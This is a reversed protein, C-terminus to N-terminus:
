RIGRNATGRYTREHWQARDDVNMDYFEVDDGRDATYDGGQNSRWDRDYDSAYRDDYRNGRQGMASRRDRDYRSSYREGNRWDQSYRDRSYQDQSYQDRSYRDQPYPGNRGEDGYQSYAGGRYPSGSDYGYDYNDRQASGYDYDRYDRQSSRWDDRRDRYRDMDRRSEDWRRDRLSDEYRNYNRDVGPDRFDYYESSRGMDGWGRDAGNMNQALAPLALATAAAVSTPILVHKIRM